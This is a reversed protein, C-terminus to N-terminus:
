AQMNICCMVKRETLTQGLEAVAVDQANNGGRQLSTLSVTEVQLTHLHVTIEKECKAKM